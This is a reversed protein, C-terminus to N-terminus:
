QIDMPHLDRNNKENITKTELNTHLKPNLTNSNTYTKKQIKRYKIKQQIMKDSTKPKKNKSSHTDRV